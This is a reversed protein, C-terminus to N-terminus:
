KKKKSRRRINSYKFNRYVILTTIISTITYSLPPHFTHPRHKADLHELTDIPKTQKHKRRFYKCSKKTPSKKNRRYLVIISVIFYIYIYSRAVRLGLCGFVCHHQYCTVYQRKTASRVEYHVVYLLATIPIATKVPGRVSPIQDFSISDYRYGTRM